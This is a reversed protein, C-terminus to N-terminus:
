PSQLACGPRRVLTLRRFEGVLLHVRWFQRNVPVEERATTKTSKKSIHRLALYFRKLL